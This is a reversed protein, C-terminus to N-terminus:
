FNIANTRALKANHQRRKANKSEALQAPAGLAEDAQPPAAPHFSGRMDPEADLVVRVHPYRRLRHMPLAPM